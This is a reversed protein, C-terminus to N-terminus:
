WLCRVDPYQRILHDPTVVTMNYEQATAILLRDVPDAHIPPLQDSQVAIQFNLPVQQIGHHKLLQRFWEEVELPLQLRKKRVLFSVELATTATVFLDNPHEGIAQKASESLKSQDMSLWLLTCTDLLMPM